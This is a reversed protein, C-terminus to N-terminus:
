ARWRVSFGTGCHICVFRQRRLVSVVVGAWGAVAAQTASDPHPPAFGQITPHKGCLPCKHLLALLVHLSAAAAFTGFVYQFAPLVKTGGFAPALPAAIALVLLGWALVVSWADLVLRRSQPYPQLVPHSRAPRVGAM